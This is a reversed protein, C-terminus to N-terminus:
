SQMAGGPSQAECQQSRGKECVMQSARFHLAESDRLGRCPAVGHWDLHSSCGHQTCFPRAHAERGALQGLLGHRLGM